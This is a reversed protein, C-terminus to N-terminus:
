EDQLQSAPLTNHADLVNGSRALNVVQMPLWAFASLEIQEERCVGRVARQHVSHGVAKFDVFINSAFDKEPADWLFENGVFLQLQDLSRQSGMRLFPTVFCLDFLINNGNMFRFTVIIPSAHESRPNVRCLLLLESDSVGIVHHNQSENQRVRRLASLEYVERHCFISVLKHFVNIPAGRKLVRIERKRDAGLEPRTSKM